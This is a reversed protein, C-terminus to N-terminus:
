QKVEARKNDCWQMVRDAYWKPLDIDHFADDSLYSGLPLGDSIKKMAEEYEPLLVRLEYEALNLANRSVLFTSVHYPAKKELCVILFHTANIGQAKLGSLYFAAQRHYGRDILSRAFDEKKASKATKFDIAVVGKEMVRRGMEDTSPLELESTLADIKAKCKVGDREFLVTMEKQEVHKTISAVARHTLLSKAINQAQELQSGKILEKGQEEAEKLAEKYAKSRGDESPAVLYRKSFEDPQLLLLHVLTGFKMSETQSIGENVFLGLDKESKYLNSLATNSCRNIEFYKEDPLSHYIGNEM